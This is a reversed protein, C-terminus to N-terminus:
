LRGAYQEKAKWFFDNDRQYQEVLWDVFLPSYQPSGYKPEHTFEPMTAERVDYVRRVSLVDHANVHAGGPLRKNVEELLEKQRYPHTKDPDLKGYVLAAPDDTLRIETPTGADDTSHVTAVRAAEPAEIVQRMRGLWLERM